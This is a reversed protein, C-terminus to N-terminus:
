KRSSEVVNTAFIKYPFHPTGDPMQTDSQPLIHFLKHTNNFVLEIGGDSIKAGNPLFNVDMRICHVEDITKVPKEVGIFVGWNESHFRLDYRLNDRANPEGFIMASERVFNDSTLVDFGPGWDNMAKMLYMTGVQRPFEGAWNTLENFDAKKVFFIVTASMESINANQPDLNTRTEAIQAQLTTNTLELSAIQLGTMQSTRVLGLLEIVLGFILVIVSWEAFKKRKEEDKPFRKFEKLYEGIVGLTVIGAGVYEVFEWFLKSSNFIWFVPILLIVFFRWIISAIGIKIVASAIKAKISKFIRLIM